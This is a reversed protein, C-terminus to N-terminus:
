QQPAAPDAASDAPQQQQAAQADRMQIFTDEAATLTDYNKVLKKGLASLADYQTRAANIAPESDLTVNGIADITASADAAAQEDPSLHETGPLDYCLVPFGAEVNDFIQQAVGLPLNVCGHSGRTKYLTGGFAPQWTADHLGIDGNFPMWYSVPTAYNAGRLTANRECYTIGFVGPPTEHSGDPKGTVVDTELVLSGNKYLFLHQGTLNVEVYSDGYDNAGHSAATMSYNLDRTVPAGGELDSIIAAAEAANDVKWGYHVNGISVTTGYSTNLTKNGYCTNYKDALGSVYDDVAAQDVVPQLDDDLSLWSAFTSADLTQSQDGVQYTISSKLYKNLADCATKLKEDDATVSPEKYCGAQELDVSGSLGDVADKIAAFTKDQDVATGEQEEEITFGNKADYESIRADVPEKQNKEDMCDLDDAVSKLKDEDYSVLTESTLHDPKFLKVIWAFGNQKKLLKEMNGDSEAKLGFDDGSITESKGDREAIDLAYGKVSEEANKEVKDATCGAVPMGNITTRFFFHNMFFVSFGIYIAALVGCIIGATILIIKKNLHINKFM